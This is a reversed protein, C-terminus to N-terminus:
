PILLTCRDICILLRSSPSKRISDNLLLPTAGFMWVKSAKESSAPTGAADSGCELIRQPRLNTVCIRRSLPPLTDSCRLPSPCLSPQVTVSMSGRMALVRGLSGISMRGSPVDDRCSRVGSCALAAKSLELEITEATDGLLAGSVNASSKTREVHDLMEVPGGFLRM